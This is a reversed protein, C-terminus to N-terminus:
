MLCSEDKLRLRIQDKIGQSFDRDIQLAQCSGDQLHDQLREQLRDMDGKGMGYSLSLSLTMASLCTVVLIKKM